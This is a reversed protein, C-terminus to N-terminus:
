NKKLINDDFCMKMIDKLHYFSNNFLILAPCYINHYNTMHDNYGKCDYLTRDKCEYCTYLETYPKIGDEPKIKRVTEIIFKCKDIMYNKCFNNIQKHSPIYNINNFQKFFENNDGKYLAPIYIMGTYEALFMSFIDRIINNLIYDKEEFVKAMVINKNTYDKEIWEKYSKTKKIVEMPINGRINEIKDIIDEKMNKLNNMFNNYEEETMYPKDPTLINLIENKVIYYNNINLNLLRCRRKIEIMFIQWRIEDFCIFDEYNEFENPEYEDNEESDSDIEYISEKAKIYINTKKIDNMRLGKKYQKIFNDLKFVAYKQNAKFVISRISVNDSIIKKESMVKKKIFEYDYEKIEHINKLFTIKEHIYDIYEITDNIDVHDHCKIDLDDFRSAIYAFDFDYEKEKILEKLKKTNYYKKKKCEEDFLKKKYSKYKYLPMKIETEIDSVLYYKISGNRYYKLNDVISREMNMDNLLKTNSVTMTNFCLSCCYLNLEDYLIPKSKSYCIQCCKRMYSIIKEKCSLGSNAINERIFKKELINEYIETIINEKEFQNFYKCSGLLQIINKIDNKNKINLIICSIISRGVNPPFKDISFSM